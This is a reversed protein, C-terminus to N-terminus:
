SSTPLGFLYSNFPFLFFYDKKIKTIYGKDIYSKLVYDTKFETTGEVISTIYKDQEEPPNNTFIYEKCSMLDVTPIVVPM